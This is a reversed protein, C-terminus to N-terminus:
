AHREEIDSIASEALTEIFDHSTENKARAIASLAETTGVDALSEIAVRCVSPDPDDLLAILLDTAEAGSIDALARASTLRQLPEDSNLTETLAPVAEADGIRGLVISARARMFLEPHSRLISILTPVVQSGLAVLDDLEDFEEGQLMREVQQTLENAM